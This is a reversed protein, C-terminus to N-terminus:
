KRSRDIPMHHGVHLKGPAVLSDYKPHAMPHPFPYMGIKLLAKGALETASKQQTTTRRAGSAASAASSAALTADQMAEHKLRESKSVLMTRVRGPHRRTGGSKTTNLATMDRLKTMDNAGIVCLRCRAGLNYSQRVGSATDAEENDAIMFLVIPYFKFQTGSIEFELPAHQAAAVDDLLLQYMAVQVKVKCFNSGTSPGPIHPVLGSFLMNDVKMREKLPLNGLLVRIPTESQHKRTDSIKSADSYILLPMLMTDDGFKKRALKEADRWADGTNIDSYRAQDQNMLSKYDLLLDKTEELYCILIDLAQPMPDLLNVPLNKILHDGGPLLGEINIHRVRLPVKFNLHKEGLRLAKNFLGATAKKGSLRNSNLQRLVETAKAPDSTAIVAKLAYEVEMKNNCEIKSLKPNEVYERVIRFCSGLWMDNNVKDHLSRFRLARDVADRVLCSNHAEEGNTNGQSAEQEDDDDGDSEVDQSAEQEDDDDGDGDSAVDSSDIRQAVAADKKEDEMRLAAEYEQNRATTLEITEERIAFLSELVAVGEDSSNNENLELDEDSESFSPGMDPAALEVGDDQAQSARCLRAHENAMFGKRCEKNCVVCFEMLDQFGIRELSREINEWSVGDALERRRHFRDFYGNIDGKCEEVHRAFQERTGAQHRINFKAFMRGCRFCTSEHHDNLLKRAEDENTGAWSWRHEFLIPRRQPATNWYVTNRAAIDRAEKAEAERRKEEVSELTDEASELTDDASELTDKHPRKM